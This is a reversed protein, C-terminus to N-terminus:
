FLDDVRYLDDQPTYEAAENHDFVMFSAPKYGNSVKYAVHYLYRAEDLTPFSDTRHTGPQFRRADHWLSSMDGRLAIDPNPMKGYLTHYLVCGQLYTGLPSAHIEDVGFLKQWLHFNEEWVVLFAIGVPAVRPAQRKPLYERLSDAYVQYGYHTLSTFVAVTGLGGMDRYPTSYGYTAMFVPVTNSQRMELLWPLYTENLADLSARRTDVRAPSRTNDNLVVFDYQPPNPRRGNSSADDDVNGYADDDGQPESSLASANYPGYTRVMEQQLWEYYFADLLCPNKGDNFTAFDDADTNYQQDNNNNNNGMVRADLDPDYGFLMQRVTCAGFDHITSVNNYVRANGTEWIHYMGNGSKLISTLTADGHLCSQQVLQGASLQSLLRPVDNYYLMSNGVFAVRISPPMKSNSVGFLLSLWSNGSSSTSQFAFAMLCLLVFSIALWLNTCNESNNSDDNNNSDSSRRGFRFLIPRSFAYYRLSNWLRSAKIGGENLLLAPPQLQEHLPAHFSEYSVLTSGMPEHHFVSASTTTAATTGATTGGGGIDRTSNDEDNDFRRQYGGNTNQSQNLRGMM